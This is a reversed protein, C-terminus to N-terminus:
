VGLVTDIRDFKFNKLLTELKGFGSKINYYTIFSSLFNLKIRPTDKSCEWPHLYIIFPQKKNILQLMIKQVKIPLLRLYFGGSVPFRLKLIEFVTLPLEILTSKCDPIKINNSNLGYIAIPTGNVGYLPNIKVPFISSDYKFNLEKLIDIAWATSQNLSFNPARFGKIQTNGLISAIIKQFKLLENRLGTPCSKQLSHHYFGHCAIEHGQVAIMKILEPNSLAIEGLIFFTAKTNYKQLLSLLTVTSSEILSKNPLNAHRQILQPHHWNELDISLANIRRNNLM